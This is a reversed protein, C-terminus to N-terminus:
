IWSEDIILKVSEYLAMMENFFFFDIKLMNLLTNIQILYNKYIIYIMHHINYLLHVQLNFSLGPLLSFPLIQIGILKILLKIFRTSNYVAFNRIIHM